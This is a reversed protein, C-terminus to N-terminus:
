VKNNSMRPQQTHRQKKLNLECRGSTVLKNIFFDLVFGTLLLIKRASFQKEWAKKKEKRDGSPPLVCFYEDAVFYVEVLM